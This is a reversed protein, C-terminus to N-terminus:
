ASVTRACMQKASRTRRPKRSNIRGNAGDYPRQETLTAPVQPLIQARCVLVPTFVGGVAVQAPLACPNALLEQWHELAIERGGGDFMECSEGLQRALLFSEPIRQHVIAKANQDVRFGASSWERM